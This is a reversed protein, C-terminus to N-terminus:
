ILTHFTNRQVGFVLIMTKKMDHNYKQLKNNIAYLLTRHPLWALCSARDLSLLTPFLCYICLYMHLIKVLILSYVNLTFIMSKSTDLIFYGYSHSIFQLYTSLHDQQQLVLRQIMLLQCNISSKM